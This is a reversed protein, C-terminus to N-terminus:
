IGYSSQSCPQLFHRKPSIKHVTPNKTPNSNPKCLFPVLFMLILGPVLRLSLLFSDSCIKYHMPLFYRYCERGM